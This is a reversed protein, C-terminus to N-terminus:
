EIKSVVIKNIHNSLYDRPSYSFCIYFICIYMWVAMTIGNVVVLATSNENITYTIPLFFACFYIVFLIKRILMLINFAKIKLINIELEQNNNTINNISSELEPYNIVLKRYDEFLRLNFTKFLFKM